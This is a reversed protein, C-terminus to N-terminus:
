NVVADFGYRTVSYDTVMRVKLTDGQVIAYGGNSYLGTATAVTNGAGDLIYIFDYNREMNIYSFDVRVSSAGPNTYTWTVDENNAYPHNSSFAEGTSLVIEGGGPPTGGGSVGVADWAASVSAQVAASYNQSVLECAARADAFTASPTLYQTFATYYIQEAIAIGVGTYSGGNTPHTGGDATLVFALNAIGSNGHVGGNDAPGTILNSYHDVSYGDRTPDDMFRLAADALWIDEGLWWDAITPQMAFEAAAGMIDSFAENLAGSENQYILNSTNTTVAHTIEHAVVDFGGSLALSTVGDGDGYVMQTGNWFANVYNNSYHVTSKVQAGADDYSNRAFKTSFYSLTLGAYHHADVAAGDTWVDDSDTMLSGPLGTGNNATYTKRSNNSALLEYSSGNFSTDLTKSDGLVGTGSGHMINNYSNVIEGSHADVFLQWQSDMSQESLHWVLKAGDLMPLISLKATFSAGSIRKGGVAMADAMSLSPKIKLGKVRAIRGTKTVKGKKNTHTILEGGFVPLGKYVQAQRKHRVGFKDMKEARTPLAFEAQKEAAVSYRETLIKNKGTQAVLDTPAAVSLSAGLLFFLISTVFYKM